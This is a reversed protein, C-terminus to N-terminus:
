QMIGLQCIQQIYSQLSSDAEDLDNFNCSTTNTIGKFDFVQAFKVLIKAAQERNLVEFPQYAAVGTFNTLGNDNMWRIAEILEPDSSISLSNTLSSLSESIGNANGTDSANIESLRTLMTLRTTEDTVVKKLRRIYNAMEKRSIYTDFDTENNLSTLGM